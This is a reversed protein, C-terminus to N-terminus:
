RSTRSPNSTCINHWLGFVQQYHSQQIAVPHICQSVTLYFDTLYGQQPFLIFCIDCFIGSFRWLLLSFTPFLRYKYTFVFHFCKLTFWFIQPKQQIRLSTESSASNTLPNLKCFANDENSLFNSQCKLSDHVKTVMNIHFHLGLGVFSTRFKRM